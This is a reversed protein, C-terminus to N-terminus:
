EYRRRQWRGYDASGGLALMPSCALGVIAAVLFFRLTVSGGGNWEAHEEKIRQQRRLENQNQTWHHRVHDFHPVDNNFGAQGQGIGMGGGVGKRNGHDATSGATKVSGEAQPQRKDRQAGWGGSQYFSPPPGKFHTRRRSLGSAPRGGFHSSASSYSGTQKVPTSTQRVLQSERDYHLRKIPDSLTDYAVSIKVFRESADPDSPNHDPHHVKSLSYFQRATM